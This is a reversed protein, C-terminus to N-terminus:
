KYEIGSVTIEPMQTQTKECMKAIQEQLYPMKEAINEVKPGLIIEKMEIYFDQSIYLKPFEGKTYIFVESVEDYTYM